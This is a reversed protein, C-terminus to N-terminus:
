ATTEKKKSSLFIKNHTTRNTQKNDGSLLSDPIYDLRYIQTIAEKMTSLMVCFTICLTKIKKVLSTVIRIFLISEIKNVKLKALM